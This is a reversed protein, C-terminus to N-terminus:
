PWSYLDMFDCSTWAKSQMVHWFWLMINREADNCPYCRSQGPLPYTWRLDGPHPVSPLIRHPIGGPRRWPGRRRLATGDSWEQRGSPCSSRPTLNPFSQWLIAVCHKVGMSKAMMEVVYMCVCFCVLLYVCLSYRIYFYDGTKYFFIYIFFNDM